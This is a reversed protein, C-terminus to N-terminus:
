QMAPWFAVLRWGIPTVPAETSKGVRWAVVAATRNFPVPCMGETCPQTEDLLLTDNSTFGVTARSSPGGILGLGGGLGGAQVHADGTQDWVTYALLQDNPNFSPDEWRLGSQYSSIGASPDWIYVGTDNRFYLRDSQHMWAAQTRLGGAGGSPATYVVARDATRFIQLRYVATDVYAVYRDDASFSVLTEDGEIGGRGGATIV